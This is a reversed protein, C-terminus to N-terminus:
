SVYDPEKNKKGIVQFTPKLEDDNSRRGGM